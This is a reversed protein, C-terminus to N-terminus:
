QGALIARMINTGPIDLSKGDVAIMVSDDNTKELIGTFKKRGEM